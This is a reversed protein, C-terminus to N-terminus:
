GHLPRCPRRRHNCALRPSHVFRQRQHDCSALLPHDAWQLLCRIIESLDGEDTDGATLFPDRVPQRASTWTLTSAPAHALSRASAWRPPHFGGGNNRNVSVGADRYIGDNVGRGNASSRGYRVMSGGRVVDGETPDAEWKGPRCVCAVTCGRTTVFTTEHPPSVVVSGRRFQPPVLAASTRCQNPVPAASTRCQNLDRQASRSCFPQPVAASRSRFPRPVAASRSRFLAPPVGASRRRFSPPVVASRRRPTPGRNITSIHNLVSNAVGKCHPRGM